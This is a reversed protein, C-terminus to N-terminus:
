LTSKVKVQTFFHPKSKSKSLYRIVTSQVLRFRCCLAEVDSTNTLLGYWILVLCFNNIDAYDAHKFDCQYTTRVLNSLTPLM